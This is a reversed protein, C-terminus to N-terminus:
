AWDIPEHIITGKSGFDGQDTVEASGDSRCEMEMWPNATPGINVGPIGYVFTGQGFGRWFDLEDDPEFKTKSEDQVTKFSWQAIYTEGWVNFSANGLEDESTHHTWEMEEWLTWLPFNTALGGISTLGAKFSGYETDLAAGKPTMAEKVAERRAPNLQQLIEEQEDESLAALDLCFQDVEEAKGPAFRTDIEEPQGRGEGVGHGRDGRHEATPLDHDFGRDDEWSFSRDDDAGPELRDKWFQRDDDSDSRGRGNGRNASASGTAGVLGALAM